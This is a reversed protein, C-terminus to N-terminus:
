RRLFAMQNTQIEYYVRYQDQTIWIVSSSQGAQGAKARERLWLGVPSEESIFGDPDFRIAVANVGLGLGTPLAVSRKALANGRRDVELDVDPELQYAIAKEDRTSYSFEESLGYSRRDPDLWLLMPVGESVARSHGYRALALLRRAESDLTRGRFFNGLSPALLAIIVVMLAMVLILEILTFAAVARREGATKAGIRSIM